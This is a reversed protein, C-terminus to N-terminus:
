SKNCKFIRSHLLFNPTWLNQGSDSISSGSGKNVRIKLTRRCFLSVCFGSRDQQQRLPTRAMGNTNQAVQFSRIGLDRRLQILKSCPNQFSLFLFFGSPRKTWIKLSKSKALLGTVGKQRQCVCYLACVILECSSSNNCTYADTCSLVWSQLIYM